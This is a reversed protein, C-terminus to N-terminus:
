ASSNPETIGRVNGGAGPSPYLGIHHGGRLHRDIVEDTLPLYSADTASMGKHWQGRIASVWGSRGDRHNEWRVAYTDLRCRFLDLYFRVKAQPTAQM